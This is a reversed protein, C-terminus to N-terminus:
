PRPDGAAFAAHVAHMTVPRSPRAAIWRAIRRGQSLAPWESGAAWGASRADAEREARQAATPRLRRLMYGLMLAPSESWEIGPFAAVNLHSYSVDTLTRRASSRRLWRPCARALADAVRPPLATGYYRATLQLPAWAWWLRRGGAGDHLFDDWETERLQASLLALDHLHLMRLTHTVMGGAAHVTLHRLLAAKSPYGNLGPLGLGPQVLDSVDHIRLPLRECIRQHVEIKIVSDAHEGLACFRHAGVPTFLRERWTAASERFSMSVLMRATREADCPRVLLDIDAMPREGRAYVGIAHLAAGKLALAAIGEERARRDLVRLLAEIRQHRRATHMWQQELFDRWRDPGRWRLRASLLSSIGHMAAVAMAIRWEAESWRPVRSTPAALESALTETITRLAAGLLATPPIQAM